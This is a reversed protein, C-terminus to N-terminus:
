IKIAAKSGDSGAKKVVIQRDIREKLESVHSIIGVLVEGETLQTLCSLAQNLSDEDLSGFGEDVFMSHLKIGGSFCQIEDSLGLALSLAALFSEGGSLTKVSRTTGNYHDIVSLDLGSRLRNNEAEASKVLEYQGDTMKLLRLNARRIIREFYAGQVYAEFTIKEKGTINGSATNYLARLMQYNKEQKKLQETKKIIFNMAAVNNEYRLSVAEKEAAIKKREEILLKRNNKEQETDILSEEGFKRELNQRTMTLAQLKNSADERQKKLNQLKQKTREIKERLLSLREEAIEKSNYKVKKLLSASVLEAEEQKAKYFAADANLSVKLDNLKQIERNIEEVEKSCRLLEDERKIQEGEKIQVEKFEKYVADILDKLDRGEAINLSKQKAILYEKGKEIRGRLEHCKEAAESLAKSSLERKKDLEEVREKTIGSNNKKAKKPHHTSGCVPCEQGEELKEALIGAQESLFSQYAAYYKKQNNECEEKLSLFIQQRNLLAAKLREYGEKERIYEETMAKKTELGEKILRYKEKLAVADKLNEKEGELYKLREEAEKLSAATERVKKVAQMLAEKSSKASKDSEELQFYLPMQGAIEVAEQELRGTEEEDKLALLYNQECEGAEKKAREEDAKVASLESAMKLREEAKGLMKDSKALLEEIEEQEKILEERREKESETLQLIYRIIDEDTGEGSLLAGTKDEGEESKISFIHQNINTKIEDVRSKAESAAEKLREQLDGYIQTKFIQRFIRQREETPALLLKMFEGQAIMAVQLFQARTLGIIEQLAADVDRQRNLSKGYQYLLLAEAKSKTMGGRKSPREYEPSRRVTYIKDGYEFVLEVETKIENPAYKCRFMYPERNEGSAEGYLAYVIADFISTKGAGTDGSILYLGGKGLKEYDLVTKEAYPGFATLTLKLPRM